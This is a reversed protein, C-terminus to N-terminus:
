RATAARPQSQTVQPPLQLRNFLNPNKDGSAIGEGWQLYGNRGKGNNSNVVISLGLTRDGAKPAGYEAEPFELEYVSKKGSRIFRFKVKETIGRKGAPQHQYVGAGERSSAACFEAPNRGGGRLAIQVSDGLWAQDATYDCNHAADEVEIRLKLADPAYEATFGARIDPRAGNNKWDFWETIGVREGCRAESQRLLSFRMVMPTANGRQDSVAAASWRDAPLEPGAALRFRLEARGGAPIELAGSSFELSKIGEPLTLKPEVAVARDSFNNWYLKGELPEEPRLRIGDRGYPIRALDYDPQIVVPGAARKGPRYAKALSYLEMAKTDRKLHKSGPKGKIHLYAIGDGLPIERGNLALERGDLGTVKEVKLGEPLSLRKPTKLPVYICAVSERGDSFVRSRVAGPLKLDGIYSKRALLMACNGYAAMSRMPAFRPDMMGFNNKREDYYPYCFSFYKAVGLARFEIAKGVIESASYRDDDVKARATGRPWPMGSETVWYPIGARGPAFKREVERLFAIQQEHADAARYTHFSFVDIDELLGGEVLARYYGTGERPSALSGGVVATKVGDSAFRASVAKTFATFFEPPFYNGFSIDPENWVELAKIQPWNRCIASWSAAGDSLNRPYINSGYQYEDSDIGFLFDDKDSLLQKNWKPTDHFVDLVKVGEEGAIKRFLDYRGNRANFDMRGREPHIEGWTFRDRGWAIGNRRLIKILSRLSDAGIHNKRSLSTDMAFYEDPEGQPPTSVTVATRIDLAPFDLDYYGATQPAPLTLLRSAEDFSAVGSAVERGTYDSCRYRLQEASLTRPGHTLQLMVPEKSGPAIFSKEPRPLRYGAPVKADPSVGLLTFNRFDCQGAPGKFCVKRIIVGFHMLPAHFKKDNAGGWALGSPKLAFTVPQFKSGDGPLPQSMQHYQGSADRYRLSIRSANTRVEFRLAEAEPFRVQGSLAAQVYDGGGTFDGELRGVGPEPASLKGAAGPFEPGNAFVWSEPPFTLPMEAASCLGTLLAGLALLGPIRRLFDKM